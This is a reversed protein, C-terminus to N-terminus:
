VGRELLRNLQGDVTATLQALSFPKALFTSNQLGLQDEAFRGDAYGSVFIVPVEPRELRAKKVWSPGDMGPMIVDTVILDIRLVNDDLIDLADSASSAELVTLGKIRLARAAFARVPAEDEVLLVTGAVAPTLALPLDPPAQSASESTKSVAPFLLTFTTFDKPTSDIFVFGGSQKIIGYVTSLGLGTGEGVPKSTYFPEFVKQRDSVPIGIGQDRVKVSVYNGVPVTARDRVLPADLTLNQTELTIVGGDPMADRANVVLNMIVQEFQQRDVRIASLNDGNVVDLRFNDGVLRNLLHTLESLTEEVHNVEPKLTQKRSFALLQGVLSAARNANQSIQTLDAFNKDGQDHRLLLLDCHGTIATLLNNFDHAVGGALQGIAQMKQSQVFQAELTKLETADNLVAYLAGAEDSPMQGITVQLYSEQQDTKLRLFETSTSCRGDSVEKLWDALPRGLGEFIDGLKNGTAHARDIVDRAARNAQLVDGAHSLKLTAVPFDEFTLAINDDSVDLAPLICIEKHARTKRLSQVFCPLLGTKTRLTNTQGFHLTEDVLLDSVQQFRDGLLKRAAQNMFLIADNRGITMLPIASDDVATHSVKARGTVEWLYANNEAFTVTVDTMGKRTVLSETVRGKQRAAVNIRAFTEDADVIYLGLVQLFQEAALGADRAAHSRLLVTGDQAVLFVNGPQNVIMPRLRRVFGARTLTGVRETAWLVVITALLSASFILVFVKHSQAQVLFSLGSAAIALAFLARIWFQSSQNDAGPPSISKFGM